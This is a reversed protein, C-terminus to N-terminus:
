LRGRMAEGVARDMAELSLVKTVKPRNEFLAEPEGLAPTLILRNHEDVAVSVKCGPLLKLHERVSKPIVFQGKASMSIVMM